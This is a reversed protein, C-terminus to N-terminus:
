KELPAPALPAVAQAQPVMELMGVGDIGFYERGTTNDKVYYADKYGRSINWVRTDFRPVREPVVPTPAPARDCAILVGLAAMALMLPWAIAIRTSGASFTLAAKM